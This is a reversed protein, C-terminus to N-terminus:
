KKGYRNMLEKEVMEYFGTIDVGRSRAILLGAIEIAINLEEQKGNIDAVIDPRNQKTKNEISDVIASFCSRHAVAEFIEPTPKFGIPVNRDRWDFNTKLGNKQELLLGAAVALDILKNADSPNFWRFDMTIILELDKRSIVDTGKKKYLLTVSNKILEIAM